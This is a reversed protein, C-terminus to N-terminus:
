AVHGNPMRFAILTDVLGVLETEKEVDQVTALVGPGYVSMYDHFAVIGGPKIHPRWAEWDGRCGEHTHDGDIFVADVQGRDWAKGVEKSDGLIEEPYEFVDQDVWGAFANHEGMLSGTPHDYRADVTVIRIDQRAEALALGSTGHGAGINVIVGGSPLMKAIDKLFEIENFTLQTFRKALDYSTLPM